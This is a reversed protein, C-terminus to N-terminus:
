FRTTRSAVFKTLFAPKIDLGMGRGLWGFQGFVMESGYVVECGKELAAALWPTVKPKTVVDMVLTESSLTDVPFPLRTDENMGLPTANVALDINELTDLEFSVSVSSNTKSVVEELFSLREKNIDLVMLENVGAQAVAQGIAAGAGGAGILAVRKGEVSFGHSQSAVLFGMGDVMDGILRGEENRVVNVAKLKRARDTIEDMCCYAASKHPFTVVCGGGPCVVRMSTFFSEVQEPQIDIAVMRADMGTEIFHRIFYDPSKVQSVPTGIMTYLMSSKGDQLDRLLDEINQRGARISNNMVCDM